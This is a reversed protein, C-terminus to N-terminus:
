LMTHYPITLYVMTHCPLAPQSASRCSLCLHPLFTLYTHIRTHSLTQISIQISIGHVTTPLQATLVASDQRKWGKGREWRDSKRKDGDPYETRNCYRRRRRGEGAMRENRMRERINGEQREVPPRMYTPPM